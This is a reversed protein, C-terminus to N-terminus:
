RRTTSATLATARGPACSAGQLVNIRGHGYLPDVNIGTVEDASRLICNELFEANQNGGLTSEIVAAEGVVHPTAFSTGSGILYSVQDTCDFFQTTPSCPSIILDQDVSEGDIFDGGPAFVDVGSRGFTSYSAIRDFNQQNVPATAGVSIVHNLEAPFIILNKPDTNTNVADNGAAAVMLVGRSSAFNIARQFIRIVAADDHNRQDAAGSFSMNAATVQTVGAFVIGGLIAELTLGGNGDGVKVSCLIADPAVSGVGLGNSRIIGAVFTGHFFFDTLASETPVFSTSCSPDVTGILDIQTPDIGTDLVAVRVGAGQNSALWADSAQTVRLNWQFLSFFAAGSQDTRPAARRQLKPNRVVRFHAPRSMQIRINPAIAQVEPRKALEALASASLGSASVAGIETFARRVKGGAREVLATLDASVGEKLLIVHSAAPGALGVQRAALPSGDSQPSVPTHDSCALSVLALGAACAASAVWSVRIM